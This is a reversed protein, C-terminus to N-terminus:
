RPSHLHLWESQDLLSAISPYVGSRREEAAQLFWRWEAELPQGAEELEEVVAGALDRRTFAGTGFDLRVSGQECTVEVLRQEVSADWAVDVEANQTSGKALMVTAARENREIQVREFARLPSQFFWTVLDLGHVALTTIPDADMPKSRLTRRVYRVGHVAGLVDNELMTKLRLLGAHHRLLYGVVVVASDPLTRFTEVAQAHDDTFPKEVLAPLEHALALQLLAAHTDPPTVIAVADLTETELMHEFGHYVGDAHVSNLQGPNIDCVVLRAVHGEEQLTQLTALHRAGWRGCGVLGVHLGM